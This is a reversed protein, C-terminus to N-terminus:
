SKQTADIVAFAIKKAHDGIRELNSIVDLFIVGAGPSCQQKNLRAIHSARLSKEMHDIEGEREIVRKAINTDGTKLALIAQEYSKIVRDHMLELEQLAGESFDLKNEIRYIALEALNDAHDGVREIDNITNFLGDVIEHQEGSLSTNSLKVLYSAIERELNNVASEINFVEHAVKEDPKLFAVMSKRYCDLALNGMHLVEKITQGLAISPTELIRDDLYKVGIVQDQEDDTEPIAKKAIYVLVGAFPLQILMNGINFMTHANAIQRAADGPSISKVLHLVPGQLVLVFIITGIVNFSFHIFAARKATKTAGISSLMATVCTGINDGFLIPLAAEIPLLGQTALAILIGISASSSQIIATVGFGALVGLLTDTISGGGFSALLTRFGEFERLPKMADSMTEMGIFLIGFGIFIEAINKTRKNSTFLWIAVGIGVAVPAYDTLKFSVLQATVTTGINAGMIVGVAQTLKMIGANVFGVVMVTTASSSQIVATVITGVLVGMVRNNTLVEILRKLREGAAKELGDGMIRMGYLFLGLGGILGFAISM